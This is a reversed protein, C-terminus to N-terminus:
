VTQPLLCLKRFAKISRKEGNQSGHSISPCTSFTDPSSANAEYRKVESSTVLIWNDGAFVSAAM